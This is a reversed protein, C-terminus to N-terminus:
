REEEGNGAVAGREILREVEEARYGLEELLEGTHQGPAPPPAEGRPREGDVRLPVAIDRYDEVEPHPRSSLLGAAEVQPDRAVEAMDQIPSCPVSHRHMREVLEESDLEATREELLPILQERHEVRDPNTRFRPDDALESVDLADCLRRFIADNGGAIMVRGDATPFAQYPVISGLGSGMAGPVDGTALYGMLHYSVWGVATDLLATELEAGRGTEDRTRLASLIAIAAWMGTGFDVVSGGVRAPLGEPHGTVSMIGAFAQILPDYGPAEKLPGTRGYATISMHIVDERLERITPYDYGLREAVGLRASQLLVDSGAAIRHLVDRGEGTKLDLVISRKNRNASLFLTSDRGWFPPGWARAPDGGPPEVKIIEAGLDGLIQSCFPGALNQTLDCVRIDSLPRHPDSGAREKM